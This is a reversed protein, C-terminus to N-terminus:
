AAAEEAEQADDARHERLQACLQRWASLEEQGPKRAGFFMAMVEGRADFVEISTVVGDATPKEVAWVTDIDNEKLHLNFGEDLINLWQTEGFTKPVINSVEGTHIQICGYSGVFCMIPVQEAAAKELLMAVTKKQLPETFRGQAIRFSRRRELGHKKLLDFFEHVDQMAAWDNLFAAEDVSAAYDQEERPASFDTEPEEATFREIVQNWATIDTQPQVYIKHAAGGQRDFFQLSYNGQNVANAAMGRVAFGAHWRSFFLRLDIDKDLALGMKANGSLKRYTGKKEHVVSDNRTLAMVRGCPELAKLLPLWDKQLPIVDPQHTHEGCFAAVLDGESIKLMEAIARARKGETQLKVFAARIEETNMVAM